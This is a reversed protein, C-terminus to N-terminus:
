IYCNSIRRWSLTPLATCRRDVDTNKEKDPACRPLELSKCPPTSNGSGAPPVPHFHQAMEASVKSCCTHRGQDTEPVSAAWPTSLLPLDQGTHPVCKGLWGVVQLTTLSVSKNYKHWEKEHVFPDEKVAHAIGTRSYGCCAPQGRQATLASRGSQHACWCHPQVCSSVQVQHWQGGLYSDRNVSWDTVHSMGRGCARALIQLLSANIKALRM